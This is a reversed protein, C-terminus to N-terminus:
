LLFRRSVLKCNAFSPLGGFHASRGTEGTKIANQPMRSGESFNRRTPAVKLKKLKLKQNTSIVAFYM